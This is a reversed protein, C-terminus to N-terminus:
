EEVESPESAGFVVLDRKAFLDIYLGYEEIQADTYGEKEGIEAYRKQWTSIRHCHCGIQIYGRKCHTLSHRTGLIHLPSLVWADGYVRADGYVWADGSVQADGYVWADGSVQADGFVRADGSVWANGYVWADGSVQATGSVQADGFVWANGSVQASGFVIGELHVTSEVTATKYKWGKGKEQQTWDEAITDPFMELIQDITKM